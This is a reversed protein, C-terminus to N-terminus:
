VTAFCELHVRARPMGRRELAARVPELIVPPGCVFGERDGLDRPLARELVQPTLRGELGTRPAEPIELVHVVRLDLRASLRELEEAFAVSAWNRNAYLLLHPRRDGADAHTRLISMVPTIGIGAAVLVLGAADHDAAFDGHPGDLLVRRGPALGVVSGTFDGRPRITFAPRSPDEASSAFSFPHENLSWPSRTLKLWAFQGPRFAVGDHGEARLVLTRAGREAVVAEIRYPRRRARAPRWVRLHVLAGVAILALGLLSWRVAPLASWHGVGVVHALSGGLALIGLLIHAARWAGYRTRLRRRALTLGVLLVLSLLGLTGARARWPAQLPNLLALRGPDDAVLIVLHGVVLVVVVWALLRHARVLRPLGVLRTLIALRAPLVFQACLGVLGALGLAASLQLPSM